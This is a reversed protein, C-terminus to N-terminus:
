LIDNLSNIVSQVETSTATRIEGGEPQPLDGSQEVERMLSLALDSIEEPTALTGTAVSGTGGGTVRITVHSIEQGNALLSLRGTEENYGITDAKRNLDDNTAYASLETTITVNDANDVEILFEVGITAPLLNNYAQLFDAVEATAIAYLIEGEDPDNAMLGIETVYYGHKLGTTGDFNTITFRVFVNTDNQRRVTTPAFEQKKSRLETLQALNEGAAYEGNGTVAKTIAITKSEAQAKALLAAGKRTLVAEHFEAM